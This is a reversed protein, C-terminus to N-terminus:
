YPGTYTNIISISDLLDDTKKIPKSNPIGSLGSDVESWFDNDPTDQSLQSIKIEKFMNNSHIKRKKGSQILWKSSSNKLKLVTGNSYIPHFLEISDIDEQINIIQNKLHKLTIQKPNLYDVIYALSKKSFM